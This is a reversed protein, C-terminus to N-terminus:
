VKIISNYPWRRAIDLNIFSHLIKNSWSSWCSCAMRLGCIKILSSYIIGSHFSPNKAFYGQQHHHFTNSPEKEGAWSTAISCSAVRFFDRSEHILINNNYYTRVSRIHIYTAFLTRLYPFWCVVVLHTTHSSANWSSTEIKRQFKSQM